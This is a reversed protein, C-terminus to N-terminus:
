RSCRAAAALLEDLVTALTARDYGVRVAIRAAGVEVVLDPAGAGPAPRAEQRRRRVRVVKALRVRSRAGEGHALRHAWHRLGGATFDKGACYAPSSLGSARWEAVRQAWVERDTM